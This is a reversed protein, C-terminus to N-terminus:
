NPVWAIARLPGGSGRAIKMPLAVLYAGRPPIAALNMMNEFGVIDDAMLVRHAMFTSSVGPDLSATDIGVAGVGRMSLLKAADTGLGPFHLAAAGAEGRLATGLYAEADPWRESWDTRFLVLDGEALAGHIAEWAEIDAATIAYDVDAAAQATVDIVLVPGALRELPVKDATQRGRAFHIPADLHTGGHESTAFRYASYFYGGPDEGEFVTEFEFPEATPWYITEDSYAHSLDVWAGADAPFPESTCGHLLAAAAAIGLLRGIM